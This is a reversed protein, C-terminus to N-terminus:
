INTPIKITRKIRKMIQLSVTGKQCHGDRSHQWQPLHECALVLTAAANPLLTEDKLTTWSPTLSSLAATVSSNSRVPTLNSNDCTRSASLAALLSMSDINSASSVAIGDDAPCVEKFSVSVSTSVMIASNAASEAM